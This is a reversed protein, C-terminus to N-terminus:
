ATKTIKDIEEFLKALQSLGQYKAKFAKLEAIANQFLIKKM